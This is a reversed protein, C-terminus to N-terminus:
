EGSNFCELFGAKNNLITPKIDGMKQGNKNCFEFYKNLCINENQNSEIILLQVSKLQGIKRCYNYHFNQNLGNELDETLKDRLKNIKEIQLNDFEMILIYYAENNIEPTLMYFKPTFEYKKIIGNLINAVHYENLKEGFFDSIKEEKNIFKIRPVNNDIDVVQILDHLKYRYLGGGTTVVVSYTKDKELQHALKIIEKDCEIFEYFHSNIALVTGDKNGYPLSVFAETSILGKGQIKAYPFLKQLKNLGLAANGDTWCSILKLNPWINKLFEDIKNKKLYENYYAKLENARNVDKKLYKKIEESNNTEISLTGFEIDKIITKIYDYISDILITFFSPNWISVFSLNENKILFLLTVYRFTQTDQINKVINPVCFLKNVILNKMVGFYQSDEEFGIPIGSDTYINDNCSPTISWYSNGYMLEKNNKYMDIIWPSIGKNFESKLSKTYPILKSSKTSGSSLEFMIVKEKTLINKEGNSIRQIYPEYNSYETLPVYKQYNTPNTVKDFNYQKGYLTNRNKNIIRKLVKEQTRKIDKLSKNFEVAEKKSTIIWMKNLLYYINKTYM